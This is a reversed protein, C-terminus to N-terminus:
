ICQQMKFVCALADVFVSSLVSPSPTPSAFPAEQKVSPTKTPSSPFTHVCRHHSWMRSNVGHVARKGVTLIVAVGQQRNWRLQFPCVLRNQPPAEGLVGGRGAPEGDGGSSVRSRGWTASRSWRRWLSSVHTPVFQACPSRMPRYPISPVPLSPECVWAAGGPGRRSSPSGEVRGRLLRGARLETVFHRRRSPVFPM